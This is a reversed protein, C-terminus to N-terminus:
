EGTRIRYINKCGRLKVVDIRFLIPDGKLTLMVEKIRERM